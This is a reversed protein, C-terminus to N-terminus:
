SEIEFLPLLFTKPAPFPPPTFSPTDGEGDGITVLSKLESTYCPLSAKGRIVDHTIVREYEQDVLRLGDASEPCAFHGTSLYVYADPDGPRDPSGAFGEAFAWLHTFRPRLMFFAM